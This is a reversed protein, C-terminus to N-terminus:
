GSAEQKFKPFTDVYSSFMTNSNRPFDWIDYVHLIVYGQNIAEQLKRTALTGVLCRESETHSCHYRRKTLPKPQEQAVCTRCLPSRLKGGSRHPLVPYYLGYPPLIKCTVLGFYPSSDKGKPEHIAVPHGVPYFCNKNTWPYLSTFDIYYIKEVDQVVHYLKIANTRGGFFADRPKLRSFLKFSEVLQRVTDDEQKLGEWEWEWMVVANYGEAFLADHKLRTAEYFDGM